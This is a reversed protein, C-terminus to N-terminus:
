FPEVGVRFNGILGANNAPKPDLADAGLPCRALVLVAVVVSLDDLAVEELGGPLAVVGPASVKM